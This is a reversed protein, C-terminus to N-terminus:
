SKMGDKEMTEIIKRRANLFQGAHASRANVFGYAAGMPMRIESGSYHLEYQRADRDNDGIAFCRKYNFRRTSTLSCLPLPTPPPHQM